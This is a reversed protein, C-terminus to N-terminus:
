KYNSNPIQELEIIGSLVQEGLFLSLAPLGEVWEYRELVVRSARRVDLLLICTPVPLRWCAQEEQVVLNPSSGQFFLAAAVM